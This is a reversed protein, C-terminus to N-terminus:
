VEHVKDRFFTFRVLPGAFLHTRKEARYAPSIVALSIKGGGGGGGGGRLYFLYFIMFFIM